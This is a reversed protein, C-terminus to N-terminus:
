RGKKGEDSYPPKAAKQRNIQEVEGASEGREAAVETNPREDRHVGSLDSHPTSAPPKSM